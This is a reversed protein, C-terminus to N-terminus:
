ATVAELRARIRGLVADLDADIEALPRPPVYQYFHRTFPIECGEKTKAEDIWADPAFPTVERAFYAHIDENWPVNETDRLAPDPEPHKKANFVIPANADRESLGSILAKLQPATLAVGADALRATVHKRFAPLDHTPAQNHTEREIVTILPALDVKALAKAESAVALRDPTLAWNLRLPREVTITRYFFDENAFTKSRLEDREGEYLKVLTAIDGPGLENRKSGLGKRMKRYLKTGDILQVRGAREASKKTSLVWIYTAIGTNYFMDTPLAIIAELLDRELVWKRINSEGSGAGGTFLPSGNLVIAARGGGDAASRMKSILHMLFLMSGDSVRPLGPGFRGAYGRQTHEETVAKQQKKWDVGFPPNSLGYSFTAGAHGDNLLTDGFFIADVSQGKVTMDAKCIAYSQPNIEQGALTLTATPNASRIHDEAVSLMGGTGATPDYVSRVVNKKALTDSEPALLIDVMLEIVDRPTFHEGATENSAEAFKRILEEFIHGMEENPVAAPSLDVAAFRQVVHFLLDHEDLEAIRETIKYKDFIDKVNESFGTVYDSLNAALNESDGLATKLDFKSENWFSYGHGATNRLLSARVPIGDTAAQEVAAFVAKKTPALVADLRRLVTFPLIIDGYQHAKFSGRLLDAISWIFTAHNNSM